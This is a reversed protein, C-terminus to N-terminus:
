IKNNRNAANVLNEAIDQAASLFPDVRYGLADEKIGRTIWNKGDHDISWKLHIEILDNDRMVESFRKTKHYTAIKKSSMWQVSLELVQYMVDNHTIGSEAILDRYGPSKM